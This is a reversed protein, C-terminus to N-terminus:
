AISLNALVGDTRELATVLVAPPAPTAIVLDVLVGDTREPTTALLAPQAQTARLMAPVPNTAPALEEDM